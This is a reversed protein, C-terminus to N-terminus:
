GLGRPGRQSGPFIYTKSKKIRNDNKYLKIKNLNKIIYRSTHAILISFINSTFLFYSINVLFHYM